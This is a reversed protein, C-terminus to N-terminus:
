GAAEATRLTSDLSGSWDAVVNHARRNWHQEIRKFGGASDSVTFGM